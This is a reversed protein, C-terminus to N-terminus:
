SSGTREQELTEIADERAAEDDEDPQLNAQETVLNPQSRDREDLDAADTTHGTGDEAWDKRADTRETEDTHDTHDDSM